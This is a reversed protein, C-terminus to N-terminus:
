ELLKLSNSDWEVMLITEPKIIKVSNDFYLLFVSCIVDKVLKKDKCFAIRLLNDSYLNEFEGILGYEEKIEEGYGYHQNDIYATDWDFKTIESLKIQKNKKCYARINEVIDEENNNKLTFFLSLCTISLVVILGIIVILKIKM